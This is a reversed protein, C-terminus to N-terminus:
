RRTSSARGSRGSSAGPSIPAPTALVLHLDAHHLGLRRRRPRAEEAARRLDAAAAVYLLRGAVRGARPSPRSRATASCLLVPVGITLSALALAALSRREGDFWYLVAAVARARAVVRSRRARHRSGDAHTMGYFERLGLATAVFVIGLGGIPNSWHIALILLPVAVVATLLRAALNSMSSTLEAILARGARLDPRLPARPGPLGRAGRYLEARRFDPWLTDTFYLEAYAVEWLLFNSLRQEGSTRIVLDLPPLGRTSLAEAFRLTTSTRARPDRRGRVRSALERAADVISERGGYSLALCLTMGDNDASRAAARRAARARLGAAADVDGITILRIDNDLIEAREEVLYDRLLEMLMRVEEVPREWNQSSFAYLTLAELGIERAARMIDRVADAGKRHGEIRPLGRRKAWRGNGDMIIAVHRPLDQQEPSSM